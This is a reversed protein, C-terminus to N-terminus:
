AETEKGLELSHRDRGVLVVSDLGALESPGNKERWREHSMVEELLAAVGGRRAVKPDDVPLRLISNLHDFAADWGSMFQAEDRWTPSVGFQRCEKARETLAQAAAESNPTVHLGM